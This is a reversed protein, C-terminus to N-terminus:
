GAVITFGPVPQTEVHGRHYMDMFIEVKGPPAAGCDVIYGDLINGYVGAGFSGMREFQPARGDGCRLRALYAQEGAPMEVRVPNQKSGLP